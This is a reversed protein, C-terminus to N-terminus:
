TCFLPCVVFMNSVALKLSYRSRCSASYLGDLPQQWPALEQGIFRASHLTWEEVAPNLDPRGPALLQPSQTSPLLCRLGPHLFFIIKQWETVADVPHEPFVGLDVLLGECGGKSSWWVPSCCSPRRFCCPQGVSKLCRKRCLLLCIKPELRTWDKSLHDGHM